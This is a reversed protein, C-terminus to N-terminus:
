TRSLIPSCGKTRLKRKSSFGLPEGCGLPLSNVRRKRELRYEFVATFYSREGPLEWTRLAVDRVRSHTAPPPVSEVARQPAATEAWGLSRVVARVWPASAGGRYIGIRLVHELTDPLNSALLHAEM